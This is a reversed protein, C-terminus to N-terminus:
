VKDQAGGSSAEVYSQSSENLNYVVGNVTITNGVYSTPMTGMGIGPNEGYYDENPSTNNTGDNDGDDQLMVWEGTLDDGRQEWVYTNGDLGVKTEGPSGTGPPAGGGSESGFRYESEDLNSVDQALQDEYAQHINYVDGTLDLLSEDRQLGIQRQTDAFDRVLSKRMEAMLRGPAGAGSFGSTATNDAVATTMGYLNESGKRQSTALSDALADQRLKHGSIALDQPTRDFTSIESLAEPNIIDINLNSLADAQSTYSFPDFDIDVTGGDPYAKVVLDLLSNLM